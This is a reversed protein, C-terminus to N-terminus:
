PAYECFKRLCVIVFFRLKFTVFKTLFTRIVMRLNYTIFKTLIKILNESLIKLIIRLRFTKRIDIKKKFFYCIIIRIFNQSYAVAKLKCRREV